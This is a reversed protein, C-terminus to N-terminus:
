TQPPPISCHDILLDVSSAKEEGSRICVPIRTQGESLEANTIPSIFNDSNTIKVPTLPQSHTRIERIHGPAWTQGIMLIANM